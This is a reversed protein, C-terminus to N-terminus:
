AVGNGSTRQKVDDEATNGSRSPRDTGIQQALVFPKNGTEGIM